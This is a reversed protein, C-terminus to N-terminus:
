SAPAPAADWWGHLAWREDERYIWAQRGCSLQVRWYERQFPSATWWGGRRREPGDAAVVSLWRGDHHLREPRGWTGTHVEIALPTPLLLAPRWPQPAQAYGEWEAVPDRAVAARVAASRVPQLTLPAQSRAAGSHEVTAPAQLEAAVVPRPSWGSEPRHHDLLQPVCVQALGLTDQLRAVVDATADTARQKHILDAQRGDFVVPNPVELVVKEAPGALEVREMRRRILALIRQADRTPAGLRLSLHQWRGGELGLSLVLNVAARSTTALRAAAQLLLANVVFLLADLVTVPAGLDQEFVLADSSGASPLPMPHAAGCALRHALVVLPEFRGVVSATPLAAFDGVTHIGLGVLLDHSSAPLGLAALPLPALAQPGAGPPVVRNSQGWAACALATSPDDAIVLRAEHGLWEIRRRVREILAREAGARQPQPGEGRRALLVATRSIEAVLADPPLPAVSPSVRLLQGALEALDASEEAAVRREVQVDPCIARAQTVTMGRRVGAAAAAPTAAQVRLASREEDALIALQEPSWGCRELRFVPLHVVLYRPSSNM